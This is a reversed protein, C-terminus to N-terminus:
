IHIVAGKESVIAKVGTFTSVLAYGNYFPEISQYRNPYLANGARDIHHWGGEDKATAFQKHFIGLDLFAKNHLLSGHRDIHRFLGDKGMACAIGDKYDGTYRYVEAYARSGDLSIHFYQGEINRVTCLDEQFNGTWSYTDAYARDGATNIHFWESGDVVAARHCYYGFTRKYRETYLPKGNEDIHYAGSEDLVPALGPEHFKLVELFKKDFLPQGHAMFYTNDPSIRIDKWNM